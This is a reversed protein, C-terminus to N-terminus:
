TTVKIVPAAASFPKVLLSTGRRLCIGHTLDWSRDEKEFRRWEKESVMYIPYGDNSFRVLIIGRGNGFVADTLGSLDFAGTEDCANDEALTKLANLCEPDLLRIFENQGDNLLELKLAPGFEEEQPDGLILGLRPLMTTLAIAM